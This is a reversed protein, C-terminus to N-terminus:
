GHAVDPVAVGDAAAGGSESRRLLVAAFALGGLMMPAVRRGARVLTAITVFSFVYTGADVVLVAAPSTAAILLGAAVPGAVQTLM